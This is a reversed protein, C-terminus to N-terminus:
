ERHSALVRTVPGSCLPSSRNQETLSVAESNSGHAIQDRAFVEMASGREATFLRISGSICDLICPVVLSQISGRRSAAM